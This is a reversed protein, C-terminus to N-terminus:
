AEKWIVLGTGTWHGFCSIDLKPHRLERWLRLMNRDRIDDFIVWPPKSFQLTDLHASFLYEFRGDKPGDVFFLEAKALLTRYKEFTEPKSLDAIEQTLRGDAFDERSLCSNPIKEWPVLDFTVVRGNSPLYKCLCLASLGTDTGIEVVTAPQLYAVFGALLRYHEGPWLAPDWDAKQMRSCIDSIDVDLTKGVVGLMCEVLVRDPRSAEDEPSAVFTRKYHRARFPPPFFLRSLKM